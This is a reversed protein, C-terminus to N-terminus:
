LQLAIKRGGDVRLSASRSDQSVTKRLSNGRPSASSEQAGAKEAAKEIATEV